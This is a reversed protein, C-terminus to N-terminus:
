DQHSAGESSTLTYTSVFKRLLKYFRVINVGKVRFHIELSAKRIFFNSNHVLNTWIFYYIIRVISVNIFINSFLYSILTILLHSREM